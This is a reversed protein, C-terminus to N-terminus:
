AIRHGITGGRERERRRPAQREVYRMLLHHPTFRDGIEYGLIARPTPIAPDFATGTGYTHQAELPRPSPTALALLLAPFRFARM